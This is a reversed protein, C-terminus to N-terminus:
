ARVSPELLLPAVSESEPPALPPDELLRSLPTLGVLSEFHSACIRDAAGLLQSLPTMDVLSRFTGSGGIGGVRGGAVCTGAAAGAVEAPLLLSDNEPGSQAPGGIPIGPAEPSPPKRASLGSLGSVAGTSSTAAVPPPGQAGGGHLAPFPSMPAQINLFISLALIILIPTLFSM